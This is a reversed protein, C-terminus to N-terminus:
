ETVTITISALEVGEADTDFLRIDYSGPRDPGTLRIVGNENVYAIYQYSVDVADSDVEQGHPTESPIVGVWADGAVATEGLTVQVWIDENTQYVSKDLAILENEAKVAGSVAVPTAEAVAGEGSATGDSGADMGVSEDTRILSLMGGNEDGIILFQYGDPHTYAIMLDTADPETRGASLMDVYTFGQALMAQHMEQFFQATTLNGLEYDANVMLEEGNEEVHQVTMSQLGDPLSITFGMGTLADLQGVEEISSSVEGGENDKVTVSVSGDNADLDVNEAGTVNEVIAEAVQESVAEQVKEMPNGCASLLLVLIVVWVLISKQKM